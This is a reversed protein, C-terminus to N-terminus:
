NNNYKLDYYYYYHNHFQSFTKTFVPSPLINLLVHSFLSIYHTFRPYFHTFINFTFNQVLIQVSNVRSNVRTKACFKCLKIM